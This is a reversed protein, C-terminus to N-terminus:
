WVWEGRSEQQACQRLEQDSAPALAAYAPMDQWTPCDLGWYEVRAQYARPCRKQGNGYKDLLFMQLCAARRSLALQEEITDLREEITVLRENFSTYTIHMSMYATMVILCVMFALSPQKQEPAM